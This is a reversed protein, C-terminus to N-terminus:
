VAPAGSHTSSARTQSELLTDLLWEDPMQARLLLVGTGACADRQLRGQICRKQQAAACM